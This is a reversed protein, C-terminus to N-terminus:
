SKVVRGYTTGIIINVKATHLTNACHILTAGSTYVDDVLLINKGHIKKPNNIAFAKHLNQHRKKFSKKGQSETNRVRVLINTLVPKEILKSLSRAIDASQNYRRSLLRRRHLPVPIIYDINDIFKKINPLMAKAMHPAIEHRDAHKLALIGVKSKDTYIVASRIILPPDKKLCKGCKKGNMRNSFPHGCSICQPDTIAKIGKFCDICLGYSQLPEKCHLCTHPLLFDLIIETVKKLM